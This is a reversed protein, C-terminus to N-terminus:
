RSPKTFLALSARVYRQARHVAGRGVEGAKSQSTRAQARNDIINTIIGPRLQHLLLCIAGMESLDSDINRCRRFKMIVDAIAAELLNDFSCQQMSPASEEYRDECSKAEIYYKLGSPPRAFSNSYICLYASQLWIVRSRVVIFCAYVASHLLFPLLLIILVVLM